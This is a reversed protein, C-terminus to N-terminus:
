LVEMEEIEIWDYGLSEPKHFNGDKHKKTEVRIYERYKEIDSFIKVVESGEHDWYGMLVCVKV